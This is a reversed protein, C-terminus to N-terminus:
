RVAERGDQALIHVVAEALGPFVPPLPRGAREIDRRSQAGKGTEVLLPRAGVAAGAALDREADGIVWSRGADLDLERLAREFLGPAPKRCSCRVRYPPAGETPHHPCVYIGALEAGAEALRRRLEAHVAELEAPTMWGRAIASQNTILVPAYGAAGLRAVASAAGPFLEVDSPDRLAHPREVNLTGDRDLFV